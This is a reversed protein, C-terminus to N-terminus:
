IESSRLEIILMYSLTDYLLVGATCTDCPFWARSSGYQALCAM